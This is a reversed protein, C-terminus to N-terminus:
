RPVIMVCTPEIDWVKKFYVNNCGVDGGFFFPGWGWFINHMQWTWASFGDEM